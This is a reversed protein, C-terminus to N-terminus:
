IKSVTMVVWDPKLGYSGAPLIYDVLRSIERGTYELPSGGRMEEGSFRTEQLILLDGVKFGRDDKRIEFPKCGSFSMAFVDPDTKLKHVNM